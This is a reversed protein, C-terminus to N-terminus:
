LLPSASWWLAKPFEVSAFKRGEPQVLEVLTLCQDFHGLFTVRAAQLPDVIVEQDWPAGISRAFRNATDEISRVVYGIHHLRIIENESQSAM